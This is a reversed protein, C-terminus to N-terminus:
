ARRERGPAAPSAAEGRSAWPARAFAVGEPVFSAAAAPRDLNDIMDAPIGYVSPDFGEPIQGGVLDVIVGRAGIGQVAYSGAKDRGEGTAVYAAHPGTLPVGAVASATTAAVSALAGSSAVLAAPASASSTSSSATPM